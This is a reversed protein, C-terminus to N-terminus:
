RRWPTAPPLTVTEGVRPPVFPAFAGDRWCMWRLDPAELPTDFRFAVAAPRGDSRLERIEATMGTLIVREGEAFPHRPGRALADFPSRLYGGEPRVVLTRTDVRRVETAVWSASLLRFHAPVSDGDLAREILVYGAALAIPANVVVLDQEALAADEPLAIQIRTFVEEPGAPLRARQTLVLPAVVGHVVVLGGAALRAGRGPAGAGSRGLTSVLFEGLLGFGGLGAFVLMRDAPHTACCPVLALLMGAAWFRATVSRRVVPALTVWLLASVVAAAVWFWRALGHDVGLNCLTYLDSPPLGLQGALLVPVREVAVLAFAPPDVGPDVYFDTGEIGYGMQRWIVRWGLLVLLHPTIALLAAARSPGRVDAASGRSARAPELFLAYAVLYAFTGVGAEASFLSIAVLLPGLVAGPRWGQRRWRDHSLLALLGFFLAVLANRNAVFGVPMGHADDLAFLLAALGAVVTVGAVRRYFLAALWVTAGYWLVSHLHSVFPSTPWLHFDLWHTAATVPRCFAALLHPYTWWPWFGTDLLWANGEPDGPLFTFADLLSGALEELPPTPTLRIRIFQDDAVWGNLLSGSALGMAVVAVLLPLRRRLLVARLRQRAREPRGRPDSRRDM